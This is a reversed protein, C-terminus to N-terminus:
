YIVRSRTTGRSRTLVQSILELQLRGSVSVNLLTRRMSLKLASLRSRREQKGYHGCKLYVTELRLPFRFGTASMVCAWLSVEIGYAVAKHEPISPDWRDTMCWEYMAFQSVILISALTVDFAPECHRRAQPSQLDRQLHGRFYSRSM